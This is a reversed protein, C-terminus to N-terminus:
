ADFGAERSKSSFSFKREKGNILRGINRRHAVVILVTLAAALYVYLASVDRISLYKEAAVIAFFGVAGALSGLSILRTAAVIGCFIVCGALTELPLLVITGGLAVSVGKGGRFRAFVPFLHGAVAALAALVLHGEFSVQATLSREAFLRALLVAAVGKGVDGLYVWVAARAGVVRWVNTAGINGSGHARIDRVGYLRSVMIGFPISGLLYAIVIPLLAM